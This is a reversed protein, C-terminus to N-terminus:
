LSPVLFQQGRTWLRPWGLKDQKGAQSHRLSLTFTVAKSLGGRDFAIVTVSLEPQTQNELCSEGVWLTCEPWLFFHPPIVRVVVLSDVDWKFSRPTLPPKSYHIVGLMWICRLIEALHGRLMLGVFRLEWSRIQQEAQRKRYSKVTSAPMRTGSVSGDINFWRGGGQEENQTKLWSNGNLTRRTCSIQRCNQCSCLNHSKTQHPGSLGM